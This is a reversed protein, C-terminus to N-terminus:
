PELDSARERGSVRGFSWIIQGLYEVLESRVVVQMSVIPGNAEPDFVITEELDIVGGTARFVWTEGDALTLIVHGVVEDFEVEVGPDLHFRAAFQVAGNRAARDHLAKARADPVSLIDEGRMESGRADIFLRREHLVGYSSVYGDHTALLWQGTADQAQRISVLSPGAVLRPGFTSAALGHAIIRASSRGGVEVTSHSITQRSLLGWKRGYVQGPGANIVMRQRHASMEIALTGAGSTMAHRGRAPVDADMVVAIRGGALRAFGMALKPKEQVGIRLEALAQDLGDPDGRGGGNFAALSGDGLRLQRLVPVARVIASLLSVPAHQGANELVRATWILLMVYEALEEPRRSPTEGKADILEGARRGLEEAAAAHGSHPLVVGSWVLGALARLQALGEEARHWRRALYRQHAALARWFRDRSKDDLDRTLLESHTVWRKLRLGALEPRWGPGSGRGYRRIWDLTWSQARERAVRNGLAALDDLWLFAHRESDLRREPVSVDWMSGRGLDVERGLTRWVGSVLAGGLDADGILVAEPLQDAVKPRTGIGIGSRRASIRNRLRRPLRAFREGLAQFTLALRSM